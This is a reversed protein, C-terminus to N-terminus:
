VIELLNLTVPLMLSMHGKQQHNKAAVNNHRLVNQHAERNYVLKKNHVYLDHVKCM